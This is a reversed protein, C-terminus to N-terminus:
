STKKLLIMELEFIYYNINYNTTEHVVVEREYEMFTFKKSEMFHEFIMQYM